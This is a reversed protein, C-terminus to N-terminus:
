QSYMEADYLFYILAATKMALERITLIQILCIYKKHITNKMVKLILKKCDNCPSIETNTSVDSFICSQTHFVQIKPMSLNRIYLSLNDLRLAILKEQYQIHNFIVYNQIYGVISGMPTKKIPKKAGIKILENRNKSKIIRKICSKCTMICNISYTAAHGHCIVCTDKIITHLDFAGFRQFLTVNSLTAIYQSSTMNHPIQTLLENINAQLRDMSYHRLYYGNKIDLLFMHPNTSSAFKSRKLIHRMEQSTFIREKNTMM